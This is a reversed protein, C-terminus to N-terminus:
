VLMDPDSLADPNLGKERMEPAMFVARKGSRLKEFFPQYAPHDRAAVKAALPQPKTRVKLTSSPVTTPLNHISTTTQAKPQPPSLNLKTPQNPESLFPRSSTRDTETLDTPTQTLIEDRSEEEDDQSPLTDEVTTTYFYHEELDTSLMDIRISTGPGALSFGFMPTQAFDQVDSNGIEGNVLFFSYDSTSRTNVALVVQDGVQLPRHCPKLKEKGDLHHIMGDISCLAFSHQNRFGLGKPSEPLYRFSRLCGIMVVGCSSETQPLALITITIGAFMEQIRGALMVTSFPSNVGNCGFATRTIVNGEVHFHEPNKTVLAPLFEDPERRIPDFQKSIRKQLSEETITWLIEEMKETLPTAQTSHVISAIQVSTGIVNATFSEPIGSVFYHLVKGNIFFQVTRPISDMNVEMVVRNRPSLSDTWNETQNTPTFLHLHGSTSLSMSDKLNRGLVHGLRPVAISSEVLGFNIFGEQGLSEAVMLVVFTVSVVGKTIPESLLVTSPRTSGKADTGKETRLLINNRVAFHSKHTFLLEPLKMSPLQKSKREADAEDGENDGDIAFQDNEETAFVEDAVEKGDENKSNDDTENLDDESPQIDPKDSEEGRLHEESVNDDISEKIMSEKEEMEESESTRGAENEDPIEVMETSHNPEATPWEIEKMQNIFPSGSHLNTIRDFRVQMGQGKTSFGVRVSEPLDVIVANASKKNIFFQATRPNSDMNIEIVFTPNRCINLSLSSQVPGEPTLFHLEGKSSLAISNKIEGLPHGEEPLPDNADTLGLFCLGNQYKRSLCTCSFAVIGDTFPAAIFFSSWISKIRGDQEKTALGTSAIRNHEVITEERLKQKEMELEMTREKVKADSSLQKIENVRTVLQIDKMETLPTEPGLMRELLCGELLAATTARLAVNPELMKLLVERVCPPITIPIRSESFQGLALCLQPLTMGEFLSRGTVMRFALVGLSWVDSAPTALGKSDMVREPSNYELTGMEGITTNQHTLPVSGGLDCLFARNNVRLLVNEPKLDGHATSGSPHTHMWLLGECIDVLIMVTLPLPILESRKEYELILDKLCQCGLEMVIAHHGGMDISEHLRVIRPHAFRTLMEVERSVREKDGEKLMPLVKVAYQIGSREHLVKLVQGFAGNSLCEPKTYGSPTFDDFKSTM